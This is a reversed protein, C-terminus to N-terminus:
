GVCCPQRWLSRKMEAIADGQIINFVLSRTLIMNWKLSFLDRRLRLSHTWNQSCEICHTQKYKKKLPPAFCIWIEMGWNKSVLMRLTYHLNDHHLTSSHKNFVVIGSGLTAKLDRQEHAAHTDIWNYMSTYFSINFVLATGTKDINAYPRQWHSFGDSICRKRM